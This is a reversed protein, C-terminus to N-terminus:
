ILMWGGVEVVVVVVAVVNPGRFEFVTVVADPGLFIVVLLLPVLVVAVVVPGVIVEEVEVMGRRGTAGGGVGENRARGEFEREVEPM